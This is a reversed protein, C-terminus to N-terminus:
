RDNRILQLLKGEKRGLGGEVSAEEDLYMEPLEWNSANRIARQEIAFWAATYFM